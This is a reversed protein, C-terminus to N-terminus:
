EFGPMARALGDPVDVPPSVTSGARSVLVACVELVGQLLERFAFNNTRRVTSSLSSTFASFKEADIHCEDEIIPEVGSEVGLIRSVLEVQGVFIKGVQNAPNWVDKGAITVYCSM